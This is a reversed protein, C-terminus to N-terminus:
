LDSIQPLIKYSKFYLLIPPGGLTITKDSKTLDGFNMKLMKKFIMMWSLDTGKELSYFFPFKSYKQLIKYIEKQLFKSCFNKREKKKM